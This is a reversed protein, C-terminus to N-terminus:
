KNGKEKHDMDMKGYLLHVAPNEPYISGRSRAQLLYDESPAISTASKGAESQSERLNDLFTKV